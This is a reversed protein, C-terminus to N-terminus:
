EHNWYQSLLMSSMETAVVVKAPAFNSSRYNFPSCYLFDLIVIAIKFLYCKSLSNFIIKCNQAGIINRSVTFIVFLMINVFIIHICFLILMYDQIQGLWSFFSLIIYRFLDYQTYDKIKLYKLAKYGYNVVFIFVPELYSGLFLFGIM